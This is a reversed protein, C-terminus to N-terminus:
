SYTLPSALTTARLQADLLRVGKAAGYGDIRVVNAGGSASLVTGLKKRYASSQDTVRVRNGAVFAM